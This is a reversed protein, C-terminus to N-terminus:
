VCPVLVMDKKCHNYCVCQAQDRVSACLSTHLELVFVTCPPVYVERAVFGM